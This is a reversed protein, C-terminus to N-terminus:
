EEVTIKVGADSKTIKLPADAQINSFAEVKEALLNAWEASLVWVGDGESVIPLPTTIPLPM